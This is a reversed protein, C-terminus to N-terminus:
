RHSPLAPPPLAPCAALPSRSPPARKPSEETRLHAAAVAVHLFVLFLLTAILPSLSFFHVATTTSYLPPTRSLLHPLEAYTYVSATVLVATM